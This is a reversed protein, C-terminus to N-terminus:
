TRIDDMRNDTGGSNTEAQRGTEANVRYEMDRQNLRDMGTREARRGLGRRGGPVELAVRSIRDASDQGGTSSTTPPLVEDVLLPVTRLFAGPHPTGEYQVRGDDPVEKGGLPNRMPRRTAATSPSTTDPDSSSIM